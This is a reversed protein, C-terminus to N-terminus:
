CTFGAKTKLRSQPVSLLGQESSRLTRSTVDPQLLQSIYSPTQGHLARTLLKAAANQDFQLRDLSTKGFYTFPANCYDLCASIFAHIVIEM